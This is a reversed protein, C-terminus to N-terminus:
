LSYIQNAMTAIGQSTTRSTSRSFLMTLDELHIFISRIYAITTMSRICVEFLNVEEDLDITSKRTSADAGNAAKAEQHAHPPLPPLEEKPPPQGIGLYFSGPPGQHPIGPMHSIPPYKPVDQSSQVGSQWYPPPAGRKSSNSRSSESEYNMFGGQQHPMPGFFGDTNSRQRGVPGYHNERAYGGVSSSRGGGVSSSREGQGSPRNPPLDSSWRYNMENGCVVSRVM